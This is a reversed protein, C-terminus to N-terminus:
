KSYATKIADAQVSLGEVRLTAQTAKVMAEM